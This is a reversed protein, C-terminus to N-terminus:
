DLVLRAIKGVDTGFWMSRTSVDYMMHRISGIAFDLPQQAVFQETRTDFGVLYNPTKGTTSIWIRDKDDALVAYAYSDPGTPMQWEKFSGDAPNYRGITGSAFDGYWVTGDSVVDLRRIRNSERPITIETLEYTEPNVTAIKNTGNMGIWPTLGDPAMRIGYPRSRETPVPIIRSEGTARNFHGVGNGGQATFWINGNRDIAFTHPDRAFEDDMMFKTIEGTDPDMKGVHQARNGAYWLQGDSPHVVVTHPGAGDELPYFGAMNQDPYLYGIYHSQQGAFFVRGDAAAFPDRSRATEFPIDWVDVAQVISGPENVIRTHEAPEMMRTSAPPTDSGTCQVLVASVSLVTILKLSNKM